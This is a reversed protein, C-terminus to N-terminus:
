EICKYQIKQKLIKIQKKNNFQTFFRNYVGSKEWKGAVVIVKDQNAFLLDRIERFLLDNTFRLEFEYEDGSLSSILFISKDKYLQKKCKAEILRFGFVGKPYMYISRKDVLIQGIRQHNFEENCDYFKCMDYIQKITHPIIEKESTEKGFIENKPKTVKKILELEMMDKIANVSDFGEEESKEPNYENESGYPCHEIHGPKGYSRFFPKSEGELSWLFMKANCKENPCFYKIGKDRKTLYRAFVIDTREEDKFAYGAM